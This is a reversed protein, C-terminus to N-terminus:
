LIITSYVLVTCLKMKIRFATEVCELLDKVRLIFGRFHHAEHPFCIAVGRQEAPHFAPRKSNGTRASQLQMSDSM